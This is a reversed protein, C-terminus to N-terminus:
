ECCQPIYRQIGNPCVTEAMGQATLLLGHQVKSPQWVRNSYVRGRVGFLCRRGLLIASDGVGRTWAGGQM